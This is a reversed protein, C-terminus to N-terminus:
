ISELARCYNFPFRQFEEHKAKRKKSTAEKTRSLITDLTWKTWKYSDRIVEKMVTM